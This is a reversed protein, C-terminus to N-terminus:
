ETIEKISMCGFVTHDSWIGQSRQWTAIFDPGSSTKRKPMFVVNDEYGVEIYEESSPRESRSM